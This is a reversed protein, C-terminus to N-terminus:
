ITLFNNILFGTPAPCKISAFFPTAKGIIRIFFSIRQSALFESTQYALQRVLPQMAELLQKHQFMLTVVYIKVM